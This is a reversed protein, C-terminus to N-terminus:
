RNIARVHFLVGDHAYTFAASRNRSFKKRFYRHKWRRLFSHSFFPFMQRNEIGISSNSRNRQIRANKELLFDPHQNFLAIIIQQVTYIILNIVYNNFFNNECHLYILIIFTQILRKRTQISVIYVSRTM